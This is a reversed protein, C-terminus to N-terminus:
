FQSFIEYFIKSLQIDKKQGNEPLKQYPVLCSNRRDDGLSKYPRKYLFSSDLWPKNDRWYLYNKMWSNHINIPSTTENYSEINNFFDGLCVAINDYGYGGKKLPTYNWGNKLCNSRHVFQIWYNLSKGFYVENYKYEGNATSLPEIRSDSM